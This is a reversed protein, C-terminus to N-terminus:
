KEGLRCKEEALKEGLYLGNKVMFYKTTYLNIYKFRDRIRRKEQRNLRNSPHIWTGGV